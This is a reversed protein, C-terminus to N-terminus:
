KIAYKHIETQDFPVPEAGGFLSLQADDLRFQEDIDCFRETKTFLETSKNPLAQLELLRKWLKPHHDYLHRLERLKANACFFCGNRSTFEYSPSYLGEKKCITVADAESKKYKSLLSVKTTGDLRALRDAEDDAIGIYQIVTDDKWVRAKYREMPRVKCDRNVYCRGCLPWAWIEGAHLGDGRIQKQFLEVFTKESRVIHVKVGHNELWPIATSYIFDRHEPVEASIESDFMTECYLAETLPEDNQIALIASAMSDKGFSCSLVFREM